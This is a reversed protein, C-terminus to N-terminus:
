LVLYQLMPIVAFFLFLFCLTNRFKCHFCFSGSGWTVIVSVLPSSIYSFHYTSWLSFLFNCFIPWFFPNQPLFEWFCFTNTLHMYDTLLGWSKAIQLDIVLLFFHEVFHKSLYLSLSCFFVICCSWPTFPSFFDLNPTGLSETELSKLFSVPLIHCLVTSEIRDFLFKKVRSGGGNSFPFSCLLM